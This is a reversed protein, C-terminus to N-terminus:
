NPSVPEKVASVARQRKLPASERWGRVEKAWLDYGRKQKQGEPALPGTLPLAAGIRLEDNGQARVVAPASIGAVVGVLLNRRQM